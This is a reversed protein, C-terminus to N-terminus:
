PRRDTESEVSAFIVIDIVGTGFDIFIGRPCDVGKEWPGSIICGNASLNVPFLPQFTGEVGGHRVMFSAAGHPDDSERVAFGHFQLTPRGEAMAKDTQLNEASFM